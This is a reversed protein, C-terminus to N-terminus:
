SVAAPVREAEVAPEPAEAQYSQYVLLLVAGIAVIKQATVQVVLGPTTSIRPGWDLVIVYGVLLVIMTAWALTVRPPLQENRRAALTLFLPVAPFTRFATKTFVVHLSLLRNEPTLAVGLFCACVVAGAVFALRVFPLSRPSRGYVRGLGVLIGGMGVVLVVLGVLFLPAAIPNPQGNLAVTAGLDSFFNHFFQYGSTSHDRHTGGPYVFMAAVAVLAAFTASRRGWAFVGGNGM